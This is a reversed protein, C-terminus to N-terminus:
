RLLELAVVYSIKPPVANGILETLQNRQSARAFRFWDLFVSSDPHKTLPRDGGYYRALSAVRAGHPQIGDRDHPGTSGM